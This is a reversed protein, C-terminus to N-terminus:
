LILVCMHYLMTYCLQCMDSVYYYDRISMISMYYYVYLLRCIIISMSYDVYFLRCLIYIYIYYDAYLLRCIIIYMYYDYYYVYLLRCIIIPMHAMTSMYYYDLWTRPRCASIEDIVTNIYIYIYINVINIINFTM